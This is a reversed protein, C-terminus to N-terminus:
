KVNGILSKLRYTQYHDRAQPFKNIALFVIMVLLCISIYRAWGKITFVAALSFIGALTFCILGAYPDIVMGGILIFVVSLVILFIKNKVKHNNKEPKNM